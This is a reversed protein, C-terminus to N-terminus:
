YGFSFIFSSYNVLNDSSWHGIMLAKKVMNKGEERELRFKSAM